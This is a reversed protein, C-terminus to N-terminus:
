HKLNFMEEMLKQTKLGEQGNVMPETDGLVSEIFHHVAGVFGKGQLITDWSGLTKTILEGNEEVELMQLDKVRVIRNEGVLEFVELGTGANRHMGTFIQKGEEMNFAHQTYILQDEPNANIIGTQLKTGDGGIWRALDVVHIYDDLMTVRYDCNSIDNIRHKEIRTWAINDMLKRAEIYLPAFRRNFGVMLKRKYTLSLDVLKEAEEISEALPKDVYVDKGNKLLESVIEYHTSTSSHVFVSDCEDMLNKINSFPRIRYQNCISHRKEENPTYAGVFNWNENSSLIPLYAKQAISGLGIMGVKLKTM